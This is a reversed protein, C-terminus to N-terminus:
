QWLWPDRGENHYFCCCLAPRQLRQLANLETADRASVAGLEPVDEDGWLRYGNLLRGGTGGGWREAGTVVGRDM